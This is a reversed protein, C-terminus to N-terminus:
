LSKLFAEVDEPTEVSFTALDRHIRRNLGTLVKGAGLEAVTDVGAAVMTEVGERWRVRDTIQRELLNRIEEPDTVPAATVNAVVSPTPPRLDASALIDRMEVAASAMLPSHFAASVDLRVARKAGAEQALAEARDLAAGQGSIVVQGPANDNAVVCIEGTEKGARATAAEAMPIDAGLLASMSGQASSAARQMAEGRAQLLRATEPLSLAGAAALAAYEGLSHGAVYAAAEGVHFGGQDILVRLVAMSVAMLAPQANKTATLDGDPGEFMVRSLRRGLADDVEDFVDRAASFVEAIPKGM